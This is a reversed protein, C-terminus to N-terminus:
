LINEHTIDTISGLAVTQDEETSNIIEELVNPVEDAGGDEVEEDNGEDIIPIADPELMAPPEVVVPPDDSDDLGQSIDGQQEDQEEGAVNQVWNDANDEQQQPADVIEEFTTGDM